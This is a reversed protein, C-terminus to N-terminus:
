WNIEIDLAKAVAEPSQGTVRSIVEVRARAEAQPQNYRSGDAKREKRILDYTRARIEKQEAAFREDNIVSFIRNTALEESTPPLGNVLQDGAEGLDRFWFKFNELIGPETLTGNKAIDAESASRYAEAAAVEEPTVAKELMKDAVQKNFWALERTAEGHVVTAEEASQAVLSEQAILGVGDGGWRGPLVVIAGTDDVGTVRYTPALGKRVEQETLSDSVINASDPSINSGEPAVGEAWLQLSKTIYNRSGNADAPFFPSHEPPFRMLQKETGVFSSGWTRQLVSKTYEWAGEESGTQLYGYQFATVADTELQMQVAPNTPLSPKFELLSDFVEPVFDMGYNEQWLKTADKKAKVPDEAFTEARQQMKQYETIASAPDGNAALWSFTSIAAIDKETFGSAQLADPNAGQVSSLFELAQQQTAPNAMASQFSRVSDSPLMGSREFGYRLKDYSASDGQTIGRLTAEGAWLNYGQQDKTGLPAGSALKGDVEFMSAKKNSYDTLGERYRKEVDTSWLPSDKLAALEASDGNAYAQAYVSDSFAKTARSIEDAQQKRYDESASASAAALKSKQDLPIDAFRPDTWVNVGAAQGTGGGAIGREGLMMEIFKADAEEDGGAFTRAAWGEWVVSNPDDTYPNGLARRVLKLMEPDGSNLATDFDLGQGNRRNFELRALHLAMRDQWEPSFDPVKVGYRKEYDATTSNWTGQTFQYRGAASSGGPKILGLNAPHDTFGQFKQGGNWVDYSGAERSSLANLFGRQQPTANAMVVDAGSIDESAAGYGRGALELQTGFEMGQLTARGGLILSEKTATPLGSKNVMEDWSVQADELTTGGGKLASGLTNLNGELLAKDSEDLLQLESSFAGSVRQARDAALKAAYEERFRPPVNNLFEQEKGALFNNFESTLGMPDASRERTFNTYDQARETQYTLFQSELQLNMSGQARADYVKAIATQDGLYAVGARALQGVADGLGNMANSRISSARDVIPASQLGGSATVDGIAM